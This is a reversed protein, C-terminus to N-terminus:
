QVVITRMSAVVATKTNEGMDAFLDGANADIMDDPADLKIGRAILGAQLVAAAETWYDSM